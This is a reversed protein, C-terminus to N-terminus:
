VNGQSTMGPGGASTAPPVPFGNQHQAFLLFPNVRRMGAARGTPDDAEGINVGADQRRLRTGVGFFGARAGSHRRPKKAPHLM